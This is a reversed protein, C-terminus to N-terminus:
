RYGRGPEIRGARERRQRRLHASVQARGDSTLCGLARDPWPYDMVLGRALLSNWTRRDFGDTPVWTDRRTGVPPRDAPATFLAELMQWQPDTLPLTDLDAGIHTAQLDRLAANIRATLRPKAGTVQWTEGSRRGHTWAGRVFEAGRDLRHRPIYRDTQRTVFHHQAEHPLLGHETLADAIETAATPSLPPRTSVRDPYAPRTVAPDRRDSLLATTVPKSPVM